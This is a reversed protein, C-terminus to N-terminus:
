KDIRSVTATESGPNGVHDTFEFTYSGNGTFTYSGGETGTLIWESCNILSATVNGNTSGTTSYSIECIPIERDIRVDYSASGTTGVYNEFM